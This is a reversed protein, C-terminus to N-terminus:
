NGAVVQTQKNSIVRAKKHGKRAVVVWTKDSTQTIKSPDVEKDM